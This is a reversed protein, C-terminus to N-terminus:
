LASIRFAGAPLDPDGLPGLFVRAGGVRQEGREASHAGLSHVSSPFQVVELSQSARERSYRRRHELLKSFLLYENSLEQFNNVVDAYTQVTGSM